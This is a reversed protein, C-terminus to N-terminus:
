AKDARIQASKNTYGAPYRKRLKEINLALCESRSIGLEERIGQLFFEIDGLEEKLHDRDLPKRYIISKKLVDLIEGAEGAVGMSMHLLHADSPTMEEKIQAGSKALARVLEAHQEDMFITKSETM